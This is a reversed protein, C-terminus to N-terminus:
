KEEEEEEMKGIKKMLTRAKFITCQLNSPITDSIFTCIHKHAHTHRHICAYIYM